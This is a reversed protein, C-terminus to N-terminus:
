MLLKAYKKGNETLFVNVFHILDVFSFILKHCTWKPSNKGLQFTGVLKRQNVRFPVLLRFDRERESIESVLDHM